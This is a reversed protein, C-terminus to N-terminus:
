LKEKELFSPNSIVDFMSKKVKRSIINEIQDGTTVPVTSKNIIIKYKKIYKSISKAVSFVQSLDVQNSYKKTPTGVCIFIIQAEKIAKEFDNTFYLRKARYNNKILDGLGPEYIPTILNKLKNIKNKDKDVCYVKNGLDAFCTGSVLGVYGTGIMCIKM